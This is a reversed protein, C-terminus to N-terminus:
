RKVIKRAALIEFAALQPTGPHHGSADANVIANAAMVMRRLERRVKKLEATKEELQIALDIVKNAGVRAVDHWGRRDYSLRHRSLVACAWEEDKKSL